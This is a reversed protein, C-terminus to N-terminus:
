QIVPLQKLMPTRPSKEALIMRGKFDIAMGDVKLGFFERMENEILVASLQLSSLSPVEEEKAVRVRLSMLDLERQFLYIIQFTEGEDLCVANILRAGRNLLEKATDTLQDRSITLDQM